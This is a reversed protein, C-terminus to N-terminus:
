VESHGAGTKAAASSEMQSAESPGVAEATGARTLSNNPNNNHPLLRPQNRSRNPRPRQSPGTPLIWRRRLSGRGGAAIAGGHPSRPNKSKEKGSKEEEKEVRDELKWRNGTRPHEDKSTSKMHHNEPSPVLLLRLHLRRRARARRRPTEKEGEEELKWRNGARPNEDKSKTKKHNHPSRVPRLRM